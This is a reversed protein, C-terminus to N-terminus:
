KSLLRQTYTGSPTTVSLLYCGAQSPLATEFRNGSVATTSLLRGNMDYLMATAEATGDPITCQVTRSDLYRVMLGPASVEISGVSSTPYKQIIYQIGDMANIQGYRAKYPQSAVGNDQYSSNALVDLIQDPSLSPNYQLWLAIIGAAAPAAMSTGIKQGWYYTKGDAAEKSFVLGNQDLSNVSAIIVTGPALVHPLVQGDSPFRYGHSSYSAPYGVGGYGASVKYTAGNIDTWTERGNWAGVSITNDATCYDSITNDPNGDVYGTMEIANFAGYSPQTMMLVNAGADSKVKLAVYTTSGTAVTMTGRIVTAYVGTANDVGASMALNGRLLNAMEPYKSENPKNSNFLLLYDAESGLTEANMYPTCFLEQKSARDVVAFAIEFQKTDSSCIQVNASKSPQFTNSSSVIATMLPDTDTAFDRTLTSRTSGDNGAALVIIRGPGAMRKMAEAVTGKGNHAGFISGISMNVVVPMNHADGYKFASNIGEIVEDNAISEGMSALVLSSEPAMGRYDVTEFAGAAVGAVHTGHGGQYVDFPATEIKEPTDYVDAILEKTESEKASTLQVFMKTRLETGDNNYFAMHAPQIGCDTVGVVVGEGRFPVADAEIGSVGAQVQDTMTEPKVLNVFPIAERLADICMVGKLGAAQRIAEPTASATLIGYVNNSINFGLAELEATDAGPEMIVNVAVRQAELSRAEATREQELAALQHRLMVSMNDAHSGFSVGALLAASILYEHKM